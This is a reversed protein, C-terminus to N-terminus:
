KGAQHDDDPEVKPIVKTDTSVTPIAATDDQHYEYGSQPYYDEEDEPAAHVAQYRRRRVIGALGVVLLGTGSLTAVVLGWARLNNGGIGEAAVPSPDSTRSPRSPSASPKASASPSPSATVTVFVTETDVETVVMTKIVTATITITEAPATVTSPSAQPTFCPAPSYSPTPSDTPSRSVEVHCDGPAAGEAPGVALLASGFAVIFAAASVLATRKFVIARSKLGHPRLSYKVGDYKTIVPKSMGMSEGEGQVVWLLSSEKTHMTLAM